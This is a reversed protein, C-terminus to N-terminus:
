TKRGGINHRKEKFALCVHWDYYLNIYITCIKLGVYTEQRCPVDVIPKQALQLYVQWKDAVL